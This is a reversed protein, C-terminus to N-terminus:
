TDHWALVVCVCFLLFFFCLSSAYFLPMDQMIWSPGMYLPMLTLGVGCLDLFPRERTRRPGNFVGDEDFDSYRKM